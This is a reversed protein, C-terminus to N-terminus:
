AKGSKSHQKVYDLVAQNDEPMRCGVICEGDNDTCRMISGELPSAGQIVFNPIDVKVLKGIFRTFQMNTTSFAFGNASINVMKGNVSEKVGDVTIACADSVLIREYKRRNVVSPSSTLVVKFWGDGKDKLPTIKADNWHYLVNEVAVHLHFLQNKTRIAAAAKEDYLRIILDKGSQECVEGRYEQSSNAASVGTQAYVVSVKMGAKVDQVGMFGGDGLEEMLRGVVNEIKNVNAATEGYKNLMAKTTADADSISETMVQMVDCIQQMNNVMNQNSSEVEKMASDIVGIHSGMQTSDNTITVVSENVKNVNQTAVQILELTKTISQTMKDATEELHQLATLIRSSSSQTGMSLNRIEDAVVAFGKGAEGARAAEISANLALLNTQSTIGSITGTEEKVMVFESRFENLVKEVEASLEAMMNTSDVVGALAQSSEQAHSVSEQVLQMMQEVLGAVNQVQTNIETTMDMSSMTKQYLVGNNNALETMGSVVNGAGQKNEDALERVVIVGDVIANSATKVKAITEVVRKLNSKISETLANDSQCMHDISLIYCGYCLMICGLQLLYDKIDRAANMGQMYRYVISGVVVITNTIACRIIYKKDKYLIVMSTIPFIYAFTIASESTCIVFTYFIGYGVALIDKYFAIEMGKIKLVALGIFYPIWCVLFYVTIYGSTHQGRMSEGACLASLLVNVVLWVLMAKRNASKKFVEENYEMYTERGEATKIYECVILNEKRCLM